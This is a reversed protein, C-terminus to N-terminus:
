APLELDELGDLLGDGPTGEVERDIDLLLLVGFRGQLPAHRQGAELAADDDHHVRLGAFHQGHDTKRGVVVVQERVPDAGRVVLFQQIVRVLGERVVGNRLM